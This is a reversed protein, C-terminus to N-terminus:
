LCRSEPPCYFIFWIKCKCTSVSLKNFPKDLCKRFFTVQLRDWAAWPYGPHSTLGDCIDYMLTGLTQDLLAVLGWNESKNILCNGPETPADSCQFRCVLGGVSSSPFGSMYACIIPSKSAYIDKSQLLVAVLSWSHTCCAFVCLLALIQACLRPTWHLQTLPHADWSPSAHSGDLTGGAKQETSGTILRLVGGGHVQVTQAGPPCDTPPHLHTLTSPTSHPSKRQKAAQGGSVGGTGRFPKQNCVLLQLASQSEYFFCIGRFVDM